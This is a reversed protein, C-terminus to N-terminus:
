KSETQIEENREVYLCVPEKQTLERERHSDREGDKDRERERWEEREYYDIAQGGNM